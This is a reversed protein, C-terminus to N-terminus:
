IEPTFDATCFTLLTRKSLRQPSVFNKMQDRKGGCAFLPHDLAAIVPHTFEGAKYKREALENVWGVHSRGDAREEGAASFPRPIFHYIRVGCQLNRRECKNGRGERGSWFICWDGNLHNGCIHPHSGCIRGAM